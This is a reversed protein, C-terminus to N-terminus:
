AEHNVNMRETGPQTRSSRVSFIYASDVSVVKVWSVTDGPVPAGERHSSLVGDAKGQWLFLGVPHPELHRLTM